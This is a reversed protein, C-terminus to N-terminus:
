DSVMFEYSVFIVHVFRSKVHVVRSKCGFQMKIANEYIVMWWHFNLERAIILSVM